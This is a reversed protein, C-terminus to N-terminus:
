ELVLKRGAPAGVEQALSAPTFLAPAFDVGLMAATFQLRAKDRSRENRFELAKPIVTADVRKLSVLSFTRAVKGARDLLDYQLLANVQADLFVRAAGVETPVEGSLPAKFVFTRAERGRVRETGRYAAEPWFLFPMLLDFASLEVEPLLPAIWDAPPVEAPAGGTSRWVRPRPGNEILFRLTKGAGDELAVRLILAGHPRATWLRGQYVREESRRPLAHLEFELYSQGPVGADRLLRLTEAAEQADVAPEAATVWPILALLLFARWFAAPEPRVPRFM